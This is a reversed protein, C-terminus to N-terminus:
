KSIQLIILYKGSNTTKWNQLVESRLPYYGLGMAQCTAISDISREFAFPAPHIMAYINLLVLFVSYIAFNIYYIYRGLSNWKHTYLSIILPHSVLEQRNYQIMFM